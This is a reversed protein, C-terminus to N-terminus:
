CELGRRQLRDPDFVRVVAARRRRPEIVVVEGVDLSKIPDPHTVYDRGKARSGFGTPSGCGARADAPHEGLSPDRRHRGDDRSSAAMNQHGAMLVELNSGTQNLLSGGGGIANSDIAGLEGFEQTGLM